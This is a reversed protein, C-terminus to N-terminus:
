EATMQPQKPPQTLGTATPVTGTTTPPKQGFLGTSTGGSTANSFM